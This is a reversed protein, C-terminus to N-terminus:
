KSEEEDTGYGQIIMLEDTTLKKGKKFQEMLQDAKSKLKREKKKLEKAQEQRMEFHDAKEKGKIQKYQGLYLQHAEDAEKKALEIKDRVEKFEPELKKIQRYTDQIKTHHNESEKAHQLMVEHFAQAEKRMEDLGKLITRKSKQKTIFEEGTKTQEELKSIEKAIKEETKVDLVETQVKWELKELEKKATRMPQTFSKRLGEIEKDVKKLEDVKNKIKKNVEDRKAKFDQVLKNEKDREVKVESITSRLKKVRSTSERSESILNKTKVNLQDREEKLKELEAM